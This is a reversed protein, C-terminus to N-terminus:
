GDSPGKHGRGGRGRRRPARRAQRLARGIGKREEPSTRDPAESDSDKPVMSM